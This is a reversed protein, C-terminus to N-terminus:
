VTSMMCQRLSDYVEKMNVEYRGGWIACERQYEEETIEGSNLKVTLGRKVKTFPLKREVDTIIQHCPLCIYQCREIEELIDEMDWGESVMTCVSEHKDFMNLHDFHFRHRSNRREINCIHCHTHNKLIIDWMEDREQQFNGWCVDCYPMNKWIRTTNEKIKILNGDCNTCKEIPISALYALVDFPRSLYEEDPIESMLSECSHESIGFDAAMKTKIESRSVIIDTQHIVELIKSKMDNREKERKENKKQTYCEGCIAERDMVNQITDVVFKTCSICNFSVKKKSNKSKINCVNEKIGFGYLSGHFSSHELCQCKMLHYRLQILSLM